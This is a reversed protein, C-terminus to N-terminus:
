KVGKFLQNEKEVPWTPGLIKSYVRMEHLYAGFKPNINSETEVYRLYRGAIGDPLIIAMMGHRNNKVEKVVTFDVGDDSIEFRFQKALFWNGQVLDIKKIPVVKGFDLQLWQPNEPTAPKERGWASKTSSDFAKGPERSGWNTSDPDYSSATATFSGPRTLHNDDHEKLYQKLGNSAEFAPYFPLFDSNPYMGIVEDGRWIMAYCVKDTEEIFIDLPLDYTINITAPLNRSNIFAYDGIYELKIEKGAITAKVTARDAWRPVRVLLHKSIGPTVELYASKDRKSTITVHDNEYNFHFNVRIETPTVTVINNYIDVMTHVDAATVDTTPNKGGHPDFHCGGYAGIARQALNEFDEDILNKDSRKKKLPTLTPANTIQSPIIRARTIREVDDLYQSYSHRLGLWLAIQAVDGPSTTEAMKDEGLNHSIFGSRKILPLISKEFTKAVADIYEKQNFMEGYLILGRLTGLYSHTHEPMYTMNITGDPYTSNELHWVALKEILELALPNQTEEYYWILSEILRGHCGTHNEGEFGVVKWRKPYDVLGHNWIEEADVFKLLSQMYLKGKQRAWNSNRYKILAYLSLTWERLSHLEYRPPYKDGPPWCLHDPNDFFEYLNELMGAEALPDIVFDTAAELGLMAEWWRGLNHSPWFPEAYSNFERDIWLWFLPIYNREPSLMGSQLHEGALIMSKKIDAQTPMDLKTEGPLDILYMSADNAGAQAGTIEQALGNVTLGLLFLINIFIKKRHNNIIFLFTLKKM